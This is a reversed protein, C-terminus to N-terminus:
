LERIRLRLVVDMRAGSERELDWLLSIGCMRREKRGFVM